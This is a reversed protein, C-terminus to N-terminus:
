EIVMEVPESVLTVDFEQPLASADYLLTVIGEEEDLTATPIAEPLCSRVTVYQSQFARCGRSGPTYVVGKQKAREDIVLFDTRALSQFLAVSEPTAFVRVAAYVEYTGPELLQEHYLYSDSIEDLTICYFEEADLVDPGGATRTLGHQQWGLTADQTIITGVVVGDRVALLEVAGIGVVPESRGAIPEEPAGWTLAVTALNSAGHHELDLSLRQESADPQPTPAPDGCVYEGWRIEYQPGGDIPVHAVVPVALADPTPAPEDASLVDMGVSAGAAGAAGLVAVTAIWAGWRAAVHRRISREAGSPLTFASDRKDRVLTALAQRLLPASM